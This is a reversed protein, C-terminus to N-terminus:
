SVVRGVVLESGEGVFDPIHFVEVSLKATSTVITKAGSLSAGVSSPTSCFAWPGFTQVSAPTSKGPWLRQPWTPLLEM